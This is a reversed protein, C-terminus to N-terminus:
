IVRIDEIGFRKLVQQANVRVTDSSFGEDYFVVRECDTYQQILEEVFAATLNRELCIVLYGNGVSYVTKGQLEKEEIPMSLDIGYKLLIEFVVDETSRGEKIPDIMNLLDREVDKTEEDWHKLNTDTLRFVRFGTDVNSNTESEEQLQSGARRIREKAIDCITNYGNKRAVSKDDTEEPIQVMIFRRNGNDEKNLDMVAHATTSSGSFFDLVISDKDTTLKLTDKILDLSKPFDFAKMGMLDEVVKTGRNIANYKKDVWHTKILQGKDVRYKEFIRVEDNRDREAVIEGAEILQKLAEPKTKWTREQRTTNPYVEHYGEQKTLTIHAFDPSVYVPYYFNPKNERLNHDGGGLRIYPNLKYKGKEDERDFEKLKEEDLIVSNFSFNEKNKSYFLAYENSTAFFKEQNRGEPKHVVTVIGLRNFEGFIEDCITILHALENHDIAIVICGDDTLLSRALRLRAYMMSLWDSHFRGNTRFNTQYPTGTEDLLDNEEMFTKKDQYYNNKYIIDNGTNYPPDIYITKVKNTYSTQLLRLVEVNDGELYLNKTQDWNVSEQKKPLLTKTSQQQAFKIAETKGNWTFDFRERDKEVEEGLLLRLQDFDINGESVVDPFLKKLTNINEQIINRTKGELKEM